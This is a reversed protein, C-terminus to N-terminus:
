FSSESSLFRCAEGSHCFFPKLLVKRFLCLGKACPPMHNQYLVKLFIVVTDGPAACGSCWAVLAQRPYQVRSVTGEM